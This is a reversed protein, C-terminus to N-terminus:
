SLHSLKAFRETVFPLLPQWLPRCVRVVEAMQFAYAKTTLFSAWVNSSSAPPALHGAGAMHQQIEAVTSPIKRETTRSRAVDLIFAQPLIGNELSQTKWIVLYFECLFRRLACPGDTAKYAFKIVKSHLGHTGSVTIIVRRVVHQFEMDNLVGSLINAKMLQICRTAAHDKTPDASISGNSRWLYYIEFADPDAMAWSSLELRADTEWKQRCYPCKLSGAGPQNKRWEEICHHHFNKGCTTECYVLDNTGQDLPERCIACELDPGELVRRNPQITEQFYPSDQCLLDAHVTFEERDRGIQLRVVTHGFKATPKKHIGIPERSAVTM